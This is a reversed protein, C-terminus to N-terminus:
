GNDWAGQYLLTWAAAGLIGGPIAYLVDRRSEGLAMWESGPVYRSITMGVGFFLGGLVIGIIYVPKTGFHMDVGNCIIWM